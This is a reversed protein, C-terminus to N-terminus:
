RVPVQETKGSKLSKEATDLLAMIELTDEFPVPAPGGKLFSFLERVLDTYIVKRDVIFPAAAGGKDRLTGGYSWCNETLDAVATKNNPYEVVIVVGNGHKTTHATLAGRGMSRILMEFVHVGYWVISSGAPAIGLPGYFYSYDPNPIKGIAETLAPPFRLSSMSCIKLNKKKSIDYIIRGNIYTDAMPKDLYIPLGLDSCKKFYELHLSPDNLEIMVANVGKVTEEFTKTIKVGWAELQKIRKNIGEENQFPTVFALCTVARLGEVKQDAPCDPAQMRKSFEISHSSDLGILAIKLEDAM